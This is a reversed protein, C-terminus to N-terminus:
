EKLTALYDGLEEIAMAEDNGDARLVVDSGCSVGACIISLISKLDAEKDSAVLKIDSKFKMALKNIEAAPRAHLGAKNIIKIRREVM